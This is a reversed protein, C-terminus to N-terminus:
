WFFTWFLIEVTIKWMKKKYIELVISSIIFLIKYTENQNFFITSFIGTWIKLLTKKTQVKYGNVPPWNSFFDSLQSILFWSCSSWKRYFKWSPWFWPAKFNELKKLCCFFILFYTIFNILESICSQHSKCYCRCAQINERQESHNPEIYVVTLPDFIKM